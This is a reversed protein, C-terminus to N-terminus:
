ATKQRAQNHQDVGTVPAQRAIVWPRGGRLLPNRYGGSGGVTSSIMAHHPNATLVYIAKPQPAQDNHEPPRPQADAFRKSQGLAVELRRAARDQDAAPLPALAALHPHVAPGPLVRARARWGVRAGPRHRNQTSRPGVRPRGHEAAAIQTCSRLVATFAPIRRLNAGCWSRRAWATSIDRSPTGRTTMWRWSPCAWTPM